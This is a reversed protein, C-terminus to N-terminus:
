FFCTTAPVPVQTHRSRHSLYRDGRSGDEITGEPQRSIVEETSPNLVDIWQGNSSECFQGNIYM